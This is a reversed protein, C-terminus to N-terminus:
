HASFPPFSPNYPSFCCSISSFLPNSNSCNNISVICLLLCNSFKIHVFIGRIFYLTACVATISVITHTNLNDGFNIVSFPLIHFIISVANFPHLAINSKVSFSFTNTLCRLPYQTCKIIFMFTSSFILFLLSPATHIINTCKMIYFQLKIQYKSLFLFPVFIIALVGFFLLLFPFPLFPFTSTFSVNNTFCNFFLTCFFQYSIFFLLSCCRLSIANFLPAASFSFCSIKLM